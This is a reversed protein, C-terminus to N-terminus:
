ETKFLDIEGAGESEDDWEDPSVVGDINPPQLAWVSRTPLPLLFLPLDPIIPLTTDIMLGPPPISEWYQANAPQGMLSLCFLAICVYIISIHKGNM